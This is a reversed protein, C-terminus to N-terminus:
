EYIEVYLDECRSLYKVMVDKVIGWDLGGNNCGLKPFAISTIGLEKYSSVFTNLGAEIYEIKSPNIWHIKTPFNVILRESPLKYFHLSGVKLKGEKCFQKYEKYMEPYKNKVQLAIGKGMVGLCNVTNVLAQCNSSFLDGKIFKIM